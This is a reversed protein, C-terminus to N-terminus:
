SYIFFPLLVIVSVSIVHEGKGAKAIIDWDITDVYCLTPNKEFRVSGRQINTLSHLDIEQLNNMEFAVLAYNIFLSHGRIVALNPFLRGVSRLGSVRYLILYGTIEVLDPFTLNTYSSSDARDILLIQVFGEVVPLRTCEM